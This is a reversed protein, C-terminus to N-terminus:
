IFGQLQLCPFVASYHICLAFIRTERLLYLRIKGKGLNNHTTLGTTKNCDPEVGCSVIQEKWKGGCYLILTDGSSVEGSESPEYSFPISSKGLSCSGFKYDNKLSFPM